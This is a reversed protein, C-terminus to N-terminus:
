RLHLLLHNLLMDLHSRHPQLLGGILIVPLRPWVLNETQDRRTFSLSGRQFQLIACLFLFALISDMQASRLTIKISLAPALISEAEVVLYGANRADVILFGLNFYHGQTAHLVGWDDLTEIEEVQCCLSPLLRHLRM